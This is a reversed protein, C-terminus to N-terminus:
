SCSRLPGEQKPVGSMCQEAVDLTPRVGATPPLRGGCVEASAFSGDASTAPSHPKRPFSSPRSPSISTTPLVPMSLLGAGARPAEPTQLHRQFASALTPLPRFPDHSKKDIETILWHPNTCGQAPPAPSTFCISTQPSHSIVTWITSQVCWSSGFVFMLACSLM